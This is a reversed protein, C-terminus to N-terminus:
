NNKDNDNNYQIIIYMLLDFKNALSLPNKCLDEGWKVKDSTWRVLTFIM